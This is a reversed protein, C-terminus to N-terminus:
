TEYGYLVVPLSITRHIKIEPNRSLSSSSLLDQVSHYCANGSKLSSKIVEQISNQDMLTTELYKLEEVREFSGNDMKINHSRGGNQDRSMVMNKTKDANVELGIEKSCRSFSRHKKKKTCISGVLMNVDDAYVLLQHTCNLKLGVQKGSGEGHCVNYLLTSFCLYYLMAQKLGNKSSFMDSLHKGVWVRSYTENLCIKLLRVLKMPIGFEILINYLVERRVLDYTKKLDIFLQLM